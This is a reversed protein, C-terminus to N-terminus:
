WAAVLLGLSCARWLRMIGGGAPGVIPWRYGPAVSFHLCNTLGKKRSDYPRRALGAGLSAKILLLAGNQAQIAILIAKPGTPNIASAARGAMRRRTRGVCPSSLFEVPAM